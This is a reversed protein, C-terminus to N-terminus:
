KFNLNAFEGFLEKAKKDYALAAEKETKFSGLDYVVYDKKIEAHWGRLCVGKYISSKKNRPKSKKASNNSHSIYRLNSIHANSRDGDIHECILGSRGSFSYIVLRHVYFMEREGNYWLSVRSHGNKRKFPTLIRLTNSNRVIGDESIEYLGKYDPIDKWVTKM